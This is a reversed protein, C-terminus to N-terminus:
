IGAVCLAVRRACVIIRGARRGDQFHRPHHRLVFEVRRDNEHGHGSFLLAQEPRSVERFLRLLAVRVDLRHKGVVNDPTRQAAVAHM